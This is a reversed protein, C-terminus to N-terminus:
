VIERFNAEDIRYLTKLKEKKAEGDPGYLFILDKRPNLLTGDQDLDFAKFGTNNDFASNVPVDTVEALFRQRDWEDWDVGRPRDEHLIFMMPHYVYDRISIPLPSIETIDRYHPQGIFMSTGPFGMDELVKEIVSDRLSRDKLAEGARALLVDATSILPNVEDGKHFVLPRHLKLENWANTEAGQFADLLIATSPRGAERSWLWACWSPYSQSHLKMYDLPPLARKKGRSYIFPTNVASVQTHFFWVHSVEDVVIELFKDAIKSANEGFFDVLTAFSYARRRRLAKRKEFAAQMATDYATKFRGGERTEVALGIPAFFPM